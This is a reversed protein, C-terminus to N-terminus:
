QQDLSAQTDVTELPTLSDVGGPRDLVSQLMVAAAVKDVARRRDRRRVNGELLAREAIKSTFREDALAVPVEVLTRLEDALARAGRASPGSDGSLHLPLGVVIFSVREEDVIQALRKAAGVAPVVEFPQATIRVADSLAVGVRATGYDIGM